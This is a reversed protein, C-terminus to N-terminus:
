QAELMQPRKVKALRFFAEELSGGHEHTIKDMTDSALLKGEHMLAVQDCLSQAESMIHTSYIVLGGARSFEKVFDMLGRRAFVDLGNSAEDLILLKPRHIVARGILIKQRMGTSYGKARADIWDDISLQACLQRIRDNTEQEGLGALSAFFQLNERGSMREYIGMNANVLGLNARVQLAQDLTSFGCLRIQGSDPKLLTSIMRLLTTKGAGNPGLVGFVQGPLMRLTIQDVVKRKAFAKSVQHIELLAQM